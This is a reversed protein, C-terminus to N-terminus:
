IKYCTHYKNKISIGLDRCQATDIFPIPLVANINKVISSFHGSFHMYIRPREYLSKVYKRVSKQGNESKNLANM